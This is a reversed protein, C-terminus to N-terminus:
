SDVEVDDREEAPAETLDVTTDDLGVAARVKESIEVMM